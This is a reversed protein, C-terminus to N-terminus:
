LREPRMMIRTVEKKQMEAGGRDGRRAVTPAAQIM